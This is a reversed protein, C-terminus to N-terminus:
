YCVKLESILKQRRAQAKQLRGDTRKSGLTCVFGWFTWLLFTGAPELFVPLVCNVHQRQSLSGPPQNIAQLTRARVSKFLSRAQM